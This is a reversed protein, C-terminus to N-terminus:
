AEKGRKSLYKRCDVVVASFSQKCGHICRRCLKNYTRRGNPGIFIAWETKAKKGLRPM